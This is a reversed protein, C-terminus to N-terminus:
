SFQLTKGDWWHVMRMSVNLSEFIDGIWGSPRVLWTGLLNAFCKLRHKTCVPTQRPSQKRGAVRLVASNISSDQLASQNEAGFEPICWNFGPEFSIQCTTGLLFCAWM